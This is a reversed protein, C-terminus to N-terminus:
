ISSHEKSFNQYINDNVSPHGIKEAARVIEHIDDTIKYIKRDKPKITKLSKQMKNKYFKDLPSWFSKGFLFLPMVPMKEEQMLLLIETLEDMTGFGGPFFVFVKSSFTLMVKRAFFYRFEIADTLYPNPHQEHTLKINLGISRGGHEYCGRSAAEMMGPGGGTVVPHGNKALEKGLEYAAKYWKNTEPIRASGFIGVGQAYTQLQALGRELDQAYRLSREVNEPNLQGVEIEKLWQRIAENM